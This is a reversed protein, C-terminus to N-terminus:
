YLLETEYLQVHIHKICVGVCTYMYLRIYIYIYIPLFPITPFTQYYRIGGNRRYLHQLSAFAPSSLEEKVFVRNHGTAM